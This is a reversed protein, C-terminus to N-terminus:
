LLSKLTRQVAIDFWEIRFSILGSYDNSPIITFSFSWYKAVQHSSSVWQFLDQHQSLNFAFASPPSLPHSPQIADGVWHVHTQAFEPRCHLVPFGPMSCNVPDCLTPCWKAVSTILKLSSCWLPSNGKEVCCILRVPEWSFKGSFLNVTVVQILVHKGSKETAFNREQKGAEM